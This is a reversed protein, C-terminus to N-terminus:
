ALLESLQFRFLVGCSFSTKMFAPHLFRLMPMGAWHLRAAIGNGYIWFPNAIQEGGEVKQHKRDANMQAMLPNEESFWGSGRTVSVLDLEPTFLRM